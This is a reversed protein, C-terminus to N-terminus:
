LWPLMVRKCYAPYEQPFRDALDKDERPAYARVSGYLILGSAFGLWSDLLLGCGPIVLLAVSTYLPHRMLAFPGSTILKGKPVLALIQGVSTLWLPVGVVLLLIGAVRGEWALGMRFVAPWLLNAVVGVVVFPLALAAIRDGAGVLAKLKM